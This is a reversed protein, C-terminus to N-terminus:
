VKARESLAEEFTVWGEKLAKLTRILHLEFMMEDGEFERRVREELQTLKLASLGSERKTEELNFIGMKEGRFKPLPWFRLRELGRGPM